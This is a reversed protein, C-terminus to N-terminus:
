HLLVCRFSRGVKGVRLLMGGLDFMNMSAISDQASQFNEYEIHGYGRRLRANLIPNPLLIRFFSSPSM